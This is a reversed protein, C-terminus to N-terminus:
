LRARYITGVAWTAGHGVRVWSGGARREQDDAIAVGIEARRRGALLQPLAVAEPRGLLLSPRATRPVSVFTLARGSGAQEKLAACPVVSSVHSM